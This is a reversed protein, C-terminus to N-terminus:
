PSSPSAPAGTTSRDRRLRWGSPSPKTCREDSRVLMKGTNRGEFLGLFAAPAYEIGEFVTDLLKIKDAAYWEAMKSLFEPVLDLHDTCIFGRLTIQMDVARWINGPGRTPAMDYMYIAGCLAFRAHPRAVALAADLQEAGINDFCVDIGQPAVRCLAAEFDPEAKYDIVEDCGLKRLLAIKEAGGASGIVRHGCAKAIQVATSGVAGAAGTVFVVDDKRLKAIRTLGIYATLGPMGTAGLYAEPPFHLHELKELESGSANFGERWGRYSRVLDGPSFGPDNSSVVEGIAGGELAVGIKFPEVYSDNTDMRGRMYPDVSMWLNRVQVEGAAPERSGPV